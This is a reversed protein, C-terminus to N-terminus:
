LTVIAIDPIGMWIEALFHGQGLLVILLQQLQVLLVMLLLRQLVVPFDTPIHQLVVHTGLWSTPGRFSWM